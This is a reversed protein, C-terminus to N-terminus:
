EDAPCDCIEDAVSHQWELLFHEVGRTATGVAGQRQLSRGFRALNIGEVWIEEAPYFRLIELASYANDDSNALIIASRLAQINSDGSPTRVVRGVQFLLYEGLFSNLWRDVTLLDTRLPIETTLATRFEEPNINAVNLYFRWGNPMEGTEAFHELDAIEFAPRFPGFTFVIRQSVPDPRSITGASPAQALEPAIAGSAPEAFEESITKLQAFVQDPTSVNELPCSQASALAGPQATAVLSPPVTRAAQELECECVLDPLLQQIVQFVPTLREVFIELDTLLRASRGVDLRAVTDPYNELIELFTMARDDAMAAAAARRMDARRERGFQDGLSRNLQIALFDIDAQGLPIGADEIETNLIYQLDAATVEPRGEANLPIRQLFRQVEISPPADDTSVLAQLDTIPVTADIDRYRLFVQSSAIASDIEAFLVTGIGLLLSLGLRKLGLRYHAPM